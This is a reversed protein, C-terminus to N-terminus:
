AAKRITMKCIRSIYVKLVGMVVRKGIRTEFLYKLPQHGDIFKLIRIARNNMRNFKETNVYYGIEQAM